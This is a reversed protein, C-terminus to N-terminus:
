DQEPSDHGPPAGKEGEEAGTEGTQRRRPKEPPKGHEYLHVDRQPFPISINEQDFRQKFRKTLARMVTWYDATRVWPKAMFTVASDACRGIHVSPAPNKLVGPFGELEEMMVQEVFDLDEDYAVSVEIDVRRARSATHNTIIDGWIKSNPLVLVQNDFTHVTTAVLNMKKVIGQVGASEIHDDVDYPRYLLIMVGSALNSLSDQLAFGLIIGAVGFGALLPTVSIGHTSLALILGVAVVAFWSISVLMEAALRRNQFREKNTFTEMGKRTYRAFLLAAALVILFITTRFILDPGKNALTRQLSSLKDGMVTFFVDRQLLEVGIVGRQQVLLARYETADLGLRDLLEISTALNELSRSLKRQVTQIARELETNLPDEAWYKRLDSLTMSDLQIQGTLREIFRRVVPEIHDRLGAASLALVEGPHSEQELRERAELHSILVRAYAFRLNTLDQVFSEAIAQRTTAEFEDIEAREEAIRTVIDTLRRFALGLAWEIQATLHAANDANAAVDTTQDPTSSILRNMREILALLREDIRFRIADRNWDRARGLFEVLEEIEALEKDIAAVEVVTPDDSQLQRGGLNGPDAQDAVLLSGPLLMVSLFVLVLAGTRYFYRSSIGFLKSPDM